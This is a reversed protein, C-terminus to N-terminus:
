YRAEGMKRCRGSATVAPTGCGLNGYGIAEHPLLEVLATFEQVAKTPQSEELYALGLNQHRIANALTRNSDTEQAYLPMRLIGVVM